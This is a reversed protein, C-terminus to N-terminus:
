SISFLHVMNLLLWWLHQTLFATKLFKAFNVSFCRHSLRKILLSVEVCISEQLNQSIKLFVKEVSRRQAVAEEAYQLFCQSAMAKLHNRLNFVSIVLGRLSQSWTSDYLNWSIRLRMSTYKYHFHIRMQFMLMHVLHEIPIKECNSWKRTSLPHYLHSVRLFIPFVQKRNRTKTHTWVFYHSWMASIVCFTNETTKFPYVARFNRVFDIVCRLMFATCLTMYFSQHLLSLM